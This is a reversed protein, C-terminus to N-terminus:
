WFGQIRPTTAKTAQGCVWLAGRLLLGSTELRGVCLRWTQGRVAGRAHEADSEPWLLDALHQRSHSQGTIALYALLAMAKHSSLEVPRSDVAIRPPGLFSLSLTPM